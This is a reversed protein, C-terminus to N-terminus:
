TNRGSRKKKARQPNAGQGKVPELSYLGKRNKMKYIQQKKVMRWLKNQLFRRKQIVGFRRYLGILLQDLDVPERNMRLVAIVQTELQDSPINLEKLLEPPLDAVDALAEPGRLALRLAGIMELWRMFRDREGGALNSKSLVARIESDLVALNEAADAEPGKGM